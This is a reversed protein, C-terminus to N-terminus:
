SQNYDRDEVESHKSIQKEHLYTLLGFLVIITGFLMMIASASYAVSGTNIFEVIMVLWLVVAGVDVIYALVEMIGHYHKSSIKM